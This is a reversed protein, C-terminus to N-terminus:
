GRNKKLIWRNTILLEVVAVPKDAGGATYKTAIEEIRAWNFLNRIEPRDNISLVFGGTIGRLIDALNSFDDRCFIDKGYDEECGYYPPDLYFLTHPRDYRRICDEWPLHEIDVDSLRLHVESLTNKMTGLNLKPRGSTHAGYCQNVPNGGFASRQLTYFRGARQIDTLTSVNLRKLRNFENRSPLALEFYRFFEDPHHKLVRFLNVLEGNIDNLIETKIRKRKFFVHAAGMFPEVYCTHPIEEIKAAIHTALKSKGGRWPLFAKM